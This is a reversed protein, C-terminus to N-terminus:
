RASWRVRWQHYSFLYWILAFNVKRGARYSDVLGRMAKRDFEDAPESLVDAIRRRLDGRVWNLIPPAFGRKPLEYLERPLYRGLVAKLAVKTTSGDIKFRAPLRAAFEVLRHDLMPERGELSHYMTTRDVKVLIDDPLYNKFDWEGMQSVLDGRLEPPLFPERYSPFLHTIYSASSGGFRRQMFKLFSASELLAAQRRWRESQHVSSLTARLKLGTRAAARGARGLARTQGWRRILEVYRTYGGFLEDGGDASLVVKVGHESALQSVFATAIGSADGHPEDFIDGYHDLIDLAAQSTLIRSHHTTGLHRAIREAQPAENLGPEEFGITFTRLEGHQRALVAAVLSSDVGGSLFVGVPVDAVMRYAFADEVLRELEDVVDDLQRANWRADADFTVDWYRHLEVQGDRFTLWHGPPVKHVDGLISREQGVYGLSIFQSLADADISDSGTAGLYPKLAQLTSGFAIRKGSTCYFLPKVGVRDRCLHLERTREDYIAFAFIGIFRKVCDRGWRDFAKMIVETDSASAFTDGLASLEARVEAYNYIEGNFTILLSGRRMPQHGHPSLDIIALRRHGLGVGDAFHIGADDPGRRAIAASMAELTSREVRGDIFGCIGCM